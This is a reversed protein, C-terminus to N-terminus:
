KNRLHYCSSSISFLLILRQFYKLDLKESTCNCFKFNLCLFTPQLINFLLITISTIFNSSEVNKLVLPVFLM